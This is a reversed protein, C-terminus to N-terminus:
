FYIPSIQPPILLKLFTECCLTMYPNEHKFNIQIVNSDKIAQVQLAKNLNAVAKEFKLAAIEAPSIHADADPILRDLIGPNDDKLNEYIVTPGLAAVVKEALAQSKLIEIESNIREERDNNIVPNMNGTAPIFISERGMKVLLQATAEYAPIALLTWFSVASVVTVFVVLIQAKRKFVVNLIDRLSFAYTEPQQPVRHDTSDKGYKLLPAPETSKLVKPSSVPLPTKNSKKKKLSKAAPSPRHKKIQKQQKECQRKAKPTLWGGPTILHHDLLRKITGNRRFIAKSRRDLQGTKPDFRFLNGTAADYTMLAAWDSARLKPKKALTKHKKAETSKDIKPRDSKHTKKLKPIVAVGKQTAAPAIEKDMSNRSKGLLWLAIDPYEVRESREIELKEPKTNDQPSAKRNLDKMKKRLSLIQCNINNEM